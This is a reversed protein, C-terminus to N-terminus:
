RGGGGHRGGSSSHHTSSHGSHGGGGSSGSSRPSYIRNTIVGVFTDTAQQFVKSGQVVYLSNNPRQLKYTNAKSSYLIIGIVLAIFGTVLLVEFIGDPDYEAGFIETQNNEKGEDYYYSARSIFAYAASYYDGDALYDYAADLLREIRWDSYYNIGIGSTSIYDYKTDNNILFLIGDTNKGCYQEYMLDAYDVVASDSKNSGVNDSIAIVISMGTHDAFDEAHAILVSRQSQSLHYSEDVIFAKQSPSAIVGGTLDAGSESTLNEAPAAQEENDFNDPNGFANEESDNVATEWWYEVDAAYGYAVAVFEMASGYFDNQLRADSWFLELDNLFEESRSYFAGRNNGFIYDEGTDNNLLLVLYDDTNYWLVTGLSQAYKEVGKSTKDEGIYDTIGIAIHIKTERYFNELQVSLDELADGSIYEFPDFIYYDTNIVEPDYDTEEGVTYAEGLVATPLICLALFLATLLSIIKKM